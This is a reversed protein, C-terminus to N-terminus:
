NKILLTHRNGGAHLSKGQHFQQLLASVTANGRFCRASWSTFMQCLTSKNLFTVSWVILFIFTFLAMPTFSIYVYMYLQVVFLKKLHLSVSPTVQRWWVPAPALCCHKPPLSLWWPGGPPVHGLPATYLLDRVRWSGCCRGRPPGYRPRPAPFPRCATPPVSPWLHPCLTAFLAHAPYLSHMYHCVSNVAATIASTNSYTM